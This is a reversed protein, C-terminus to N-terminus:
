MYLLVCVTLTYYLTFFSKFYQTTFYSQKHVQIYFDPQIYLMPDEGTQQIDDQINFDPQIYLM